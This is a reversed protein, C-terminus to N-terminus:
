HIDKNTFITMSRESKLRRQRADPSLPKSTETKEILLDNASNMTLSYYATNNEEIFSIVTELDSLAIVAKKKTDIKNTERIKKALLTESFKSKAGLAELAKLIQQQIPSLTSNNM